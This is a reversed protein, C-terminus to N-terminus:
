FRFSLRAWVQRGQDVFCAAEDGGAPGPDVAGSIQGGYVSNQVNANACWGTTYENSLNRGILALEWRDDSSTLSVNADYKVYSDQVFGPLLPLVTYYSDSYNAGGGFALSMGNSLYAFYNFGAYGSVKPARVLERGSLDQASYRGTVENFLQDCGQGITQGNGCPANPFSDYRSKNYNLSANLTLGDISAPAYAMSLDVGRVDASAANITRLAWAPVGGQAETLELAGVQLDEYKYSYAAIEGRLRGEAATTKIGAEFGRAKEDDFSSKRGPAVYSLSNYSGSKYGTKYSGYATFNATPTYTLSVEPSINDSSIKPDPLDVPGIAGQAPGLNFESMKRTESTWRAGGALELTDTLTWFMQGFLAYSEVDMDFVPHQIIEPQGMFLNGRVTVDNKQRSSLYFAGLTYNFASDSFDSSLRVEQSFQNNKYFVNSMLQATTATTNGPQLTDFEIGYYGTVSSLSLTDSLQYNVDVTGFTQQRDTFPVGGNPVGAFAEPDAWPLRYVNDLKCDDDGIFSIDLPPIGANGEPCYGLQLPSGNEIRFDSYNLKARLSLRDNPDWLMTGRVTLHEAPAYHRYTPTIGGLGPLAVADNRSAGHLTGYRTALRLKVTDSVPGSLILEVQKESAESEYGFRAIREVEDTPDASRLSIVGATSNKGFYLSQPGKFVEANQMDFTAASYALSQSVPLGDIDLSVSQDMTANMAMTGVGRLSIQTGTSNVSDGLVMSPVRSALSYVNDIKAAELEAQSLVTSFVPVDMFSEQRKRASVIVTDLTNASESKAASGEESQTEEAQVNSCYLAIVATAALWLANRKYM